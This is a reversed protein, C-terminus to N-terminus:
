HYFDSTLALFLNYNYVLKTAKKFHDNTTFMSRKQTTADFSAPLSLNFASSLIAPTKLCIPQALYWDYNNYDILLTLGKDGSNNKKFM